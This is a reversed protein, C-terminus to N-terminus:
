EWRLADIPDLRAARLAPFFGFAIGIAASFGFALMVVEGQVSFPVGIAGAIAAAAAFGLLAGAIGGLGALVVAEILFQMLVDRGRAGVALRIGIERTRETVAVLMVNMIGIGGVLLSIAAIGGIGMTMLAMTSSVMSTVERADNVRFNLKEDERLGRRERLLDTIAKMVRDIDHGNAASAWITRVNTNGALRRHYTSIPMMIGDDIDNSVVSHGKAKLVGVVRCSFTGSRVIAGFPNQQGFLERRPTEGLICVPAGSRVEAETFGRGIAIQWNRVGFYANTTAFIGTEYDRGGFTFKFQNGALPAVGDLGTVERKIAEVDALKFPRAFSFMGRQVRAEIMIINRGMSSIDALVQDRVGQTITVVIVVSAVGIVIGLTTLGTRLLNARLERLAMWVCNAFMYGSGLAVFQGPWIGGHRSFNADAGRWASGM